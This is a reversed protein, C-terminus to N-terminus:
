KASWGPATVIIVFEALGPMCSVANECMPRIDKQMYEFHAKNGRSILNDKPTPLSDKFSFRLEAPGIVGGYDTEEAFWAFFGVNDIKSTIVSEPYRDSMGGRENVQIHVAVTPFRSHFTNRVRQSTPERVPGAQLPQSQCARSVTAHDLATPNPSNSPTPCIRKSTKVGLQPTAAADSPTVAIRFRDLCPNSVVAYVFSRWILSKSAQFTAHGARTIPIRRGSESAVDLLEVMLTSPIIVRRLKAAQTYWEFFQSVTQSMFTDIHVALWGGPKHYQPVLIKAISQLRQSHPLEPIGRIGRSSISSGNCSPNLRQATSQGPDETPSNTQQLGADTTSALECLHQIPNSGITPPTTPPNLLQAIPLSRGPLDSKTSNSKNGEGPSSDPLLALEALHSNGGEEICDLTSLAKHAISVMDLNSGKSVCHFERNQVGGPSLPCVPSNPNQISTDISNGRPKKVVELCPSKSGRQEFILITTPMNVQPNPYDGDILTATEFADFRTTYAAWVEKLVSSKGLSHGRQVLLGEQKWVQSSTRVLSNCKRATEEVKNAQLGARAMVANTLATFATANSRHAKYLGYRHMWRHIFNMLLSPWLAEPSLLKIDFCKFARVEEQSPQISLIHEDCRARTARIQM